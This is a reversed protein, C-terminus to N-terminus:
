CPLQTVTDRITCASRRCVQEPWPESGTAVCQIPGCSSELKQRSCSTTASTASAGRWYKLWNGNDISALLRLSQRQCLSQGSLSTRRPKRNPWRTDVRSASWSERYTSPTE